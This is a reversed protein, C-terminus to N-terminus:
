GRWRLLGLLEDLLLTPRGLNAGLGDGFPSRRLLDNLRREVVVAPDVADHVVGADQAIHDEVPHRRLLPQRHDPHVQVAAEEDRTRCGLVVPLLLAAREHM